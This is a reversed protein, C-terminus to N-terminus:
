PADIAGSAFGDFPAAPAELAEAFDPRLVRALLLVALMLVAAGATTARLGIEDAIAGQAIAGIPYLSGLMVMLVSLVRGRVAAPARLQAISTFSSLAGLYLLGVFFIAIASVALWPAIAYAFLAPPVGWLVMLMVRRNGFRVVLGALSLAMTVAGIGQATVLVATGSAGEDFVKEAMAPVLAIFPAALLTNVFMYAVVVRLGPDRRVYVLGERIEARISQAQRVIPPPLKLQTVALIVALFSAANFAFAWEYGGIAIMVGALAPGIVRGLNWQASSLAVAGVLDEQPVLDPLVAQYAPFGISQVCGAAFVILTVVGPGPEGTAVLVALTTALATQIATTTLLLRKRPLRDALAGGVPGLVALPAFGAAAVLGTWISENTAETVLIGVGVTEMWTGINSVFAGTWLIAFM